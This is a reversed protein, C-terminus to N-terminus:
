AFLRRKLKTAFSLLLENRSLYNDRAESLYRRLKIRMAKPLDTTQHCGPNYFGNRYFVNVSQRAHPELAFAVRLNGESFSVETKRGSGFSVYVGSDHEERKQIIFKREQASNNKVEVKATYGKV